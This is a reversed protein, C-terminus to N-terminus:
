ENQIIKRIAELKDEGLGQSSIKEKGINLKKVVEVAKEPTINSHGYSKFTTGVHQHGLVLSIARKQEETFPTYFLLGIVFHRFSHPNFYPLNVKFCCKKFIKRAASASLWADKTVLEKSYERKGNVDSFATAPFLPDDPGYGKSKLYDYWEIFCEKPRDWKIPFFPTLITKSNKTKVGEAPNQYILERGRDFSKMKLTSLSSVRIGTGACLSIFARDRRDIETEVNTTIIAKVEEFTPIRKPTSALAMARDRRSLNLFEIVNRKIKSKYGPCEGLWYFFEKLTQLHHYQTCLSLVGTKTKSKRRGLWKRFGKAKEKSFSGFDEDRIFEQWLSIAAAHKSLTVVAFGRADELYELYKKKISENKHM